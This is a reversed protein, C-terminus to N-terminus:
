FSFMKEIEENTLVEVDEANVYKGAPQAGIEDLSVDEKLEFGNILPKNTLVNYDNVQALDILFIWNADDEYKWYIKNDEQQLQVKEGKLDELWQQETGVYGNKVALEYASYGRIGVGSLNGVVDSQKSVSGQLKKGSSSLTGSVKPSPNYLEGTIREM